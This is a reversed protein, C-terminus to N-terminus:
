RPAPRFEAVDGAARPTRRPGLVMMLAVVTGIAGLGACAWFGLEIGGALAAVPDAGSASLRDTRAASIAGVAALGFAGGMWQSTNLLGSVVGADERVVGELATASVALFLFPIACGLVLLGPLLNALYSGTPPALAFSVLGGAMGAMGIAIMPRAGIAGAVKGGVGAWAVSTGRVALLGAGAEIAGFGLVRQMYTALLLFAALMMAGHIFGAVNAAVLRRSRRAAHPVLPEPVLVERVAFGALLVLAVSLCVVVSPASWGAEEARSLGALLVALGGTALMAGAPDFGSGRVPEDPPLVRRGFAVALAAAPVNVLFIWRWDLLEVILGGLFVGSSAALAGVSGWIGLAANRAAGEPFTRALVATAAPSILAAGLGQLGRAAILAGGSWAVACVLSCGGFVAVGWLFV